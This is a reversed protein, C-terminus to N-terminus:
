PKLRNRTRKRNRVLKMVLPKTLLLRHRQMDLMVRRWRLRQNIHSLRWTPIMKM